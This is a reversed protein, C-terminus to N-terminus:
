GGARSPCEILRYLPAIDRLKVLQLQQLRSSSLWPSVHKSPIQGPPRSTATGDFRGYATFQFRIFVLINASTAIAAAAASALQGCNRPGDPPPTPVPEGGASHFTSDPFFMRQFVAMRAKPREAGHNPAVANEEGRGDRGRALRLEFDAEIAIDGRDLTFRRLAEPDVAQVALRALDEPFPRCGAAHGLDHAVRLGSVGVRSGSGVALAQHSEEPRFAEEGVVQVAFQ